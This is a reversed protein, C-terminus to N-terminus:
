SRGDCRQRQVIDEGMQRYIGVLAVAQSEWTYRSICAEYGQVAYRYAQDPDNLLAAIADALSEGDYECLLGANEREIFAEHCALRNGVMAMGYGMYEFVKTPTANAFSQKPMLLSLGIRAERLYNGLEGHPVQPLLEVRDEIDLEKVRELFERSQVEGGGLFRSVTWLKADIGRDKLVRMADLM